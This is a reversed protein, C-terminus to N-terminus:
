SRAEVSFEYCGPTILLRNGRAFFLSTPAIPGSAEFQVTRIKDGHRDYVYTFGPTLSVWLRGAADVAAAQVLGPAYPLGGPSRAPWNAPMAGLSGDLEPGEIHREFVMEGAADYKRFIPVGTEFVFYFGGTPDVLPLGTNLLGHVAADSEQGTPRLRGISRIAAGSTDYENVLAGASPANILFTRGTFALAGAGGVSIRGLSQRAGPQNALWFRHILRGDDGFYQLRAYRGPMDTVALIDNPGLSFGNPGMVHGDETGVQIIRRSASRAANVAYIAQAGGDLVLAVGASTEVFARPSEINEVLRGPLSGTARLIEVPLRASALPASSATMAGIVATWCM